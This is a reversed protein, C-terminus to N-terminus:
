DEEQEQKNKKRMRRGECRAQYLINRYASKLTLDTLKDGNNSIHYNVKYVYKDNEKQAKLRQEAEERTLGDRKMIREVRTAWYATVGIIYDCKKDLGSEYLLPADIVVAYVKKKELDAMWDDLVKFIYKHTIKNLQKRREPKEFVIKALAKRDIMGFENIIGKGFGAVLEEQLEKNTRLLEHYVADCDFVPIGDKAFYAAVTSKGSGSGGTLGVKYM